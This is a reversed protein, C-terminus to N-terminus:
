QGDQSASREALDQSVATPRKEMAGSLPLALKWNKGTKEEQASVELTLGALGKSRDGLDFFLFGSREKNPMLTGDQFGKNTFDQLIQQNVKHTHIASATVAIPISIIPM